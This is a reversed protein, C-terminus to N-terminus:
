GDAFLDEVDHGGSFGNVEHSFFGQFSTFEEDVGGRERVVM